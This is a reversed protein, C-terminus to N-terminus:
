SQVKNLERRHIIRYATEPANTRYARLDARAERRSESATLDEWGTYPYHGQVIFLYSFKNPKRTANDMCLLKALIHM